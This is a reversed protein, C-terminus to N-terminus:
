NFSSQKLKILTGGDNFSYAKNRNRIVTENQSNVAEAYSKVKHKAKYPADLLEDKVSAKKNVSANKNVNVNTDCKAKKKSNGVSLLVELSLIIVSRMITTTEMEMMIVLRIIATTEMQMM